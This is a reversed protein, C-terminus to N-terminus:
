CDRRVLYEARGGALGAKQGDTRGPVGSRYVYVELRSGHAVNSPYRDEPCESLFIIGHEACEGNPPFHLVIRFVLNPVAM